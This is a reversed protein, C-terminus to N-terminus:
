ENATPLSNQFSAKDRDAQRYKQEIENAEAQAAKKKSNCSSLSILTVLGAVMLLIPFNRKM